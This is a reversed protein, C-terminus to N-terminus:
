ALLGLMLTDMLEFLGFRPRRQIQNSGTKLYTLSYIFNSTSLKLHFFPTILTLICIKFMLLYKM